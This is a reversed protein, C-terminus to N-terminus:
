SISVKTPSTAGARMAQLCEQAIKDIRLESRVLDLDVLGMNDSNQEDSLAIIQIDPYKKRLRQLIIEDSSKFVKWNLILADYKKQSLQTQAAKLSPVTEGDGISQLWENLLAAFRADTEVHLYRRPTADITRVNFPGKPLRIRFTTGVGETSDFEIRGGMKEVLSKAISLGLGTGGRKRTASSDAQSFPHFVKDQYHAPIGPGRDQVAIVIDKPNEKLAVTVAQNPDSYKVANSILNLLAQEIRPADIWANVPKEPFDADFHVDAKEAIPGAAAIAENVVETLDYAQYHFNMRETSAKELDLLDNLLKALRNSNGQAIGLLKQVTEPMNKSATAMVLDIAGKFSTVPTRLEHSMNALFERNNHEIEKRQSIDIFQAIFFNNEMLTGHGMSASLLMWKPEGSKHIFRAEIRFVNLNQARMHEIERLIGKLDDRHILSQFNHGILEDRSYGTLQALAQNVRTFCGVEDLLALPVPSSEIIDLFQSRSARLRENAEYLETIDTQSGILRNPVGNEDTGAVSTHSKFWRWTGPSTQVRYESVSQEVIGEICEQHSRKIKAVDDPHLRAFFEDQPNDAMTARDLHMLDVWSDSVISQGTTLDVDFIGIGSASLALNMRHEAEQLRNTIAQEKTVDDVLLISRCADSQDQFTSVRAKIHLSRGSTSRTTVILTGEWVEPPFEPFHDRLKEGVLNAGDIEFMDLFTANASLVKTGPALLAIGIMANDVIASTQDASARLQRTRAAVEREIERTRRTQNVIIVGILASLSLGILGILYTLFPKQMAVFAPMSQWVFTFTQGYLPVTASQTYRANPSDGNDSFIRTDPTANAGAYITLHLQQDQSPTLNSFLDEARIPAVVLGSLPATSDSAEGPATGFIPRSLVFGLNPKDFQALELPKSLHTAHSERAQAIMERRDADFSIDLGIAGANVSIPALYQIVFADDNQTPPHIQYGRADLDRALRTYTGDSKRVHTVWGIGGIRPLKGNFRVSAVYNSWEVPTIERSANILGAAGDLANEINQLRANLADLNDSALASFLENSRRSQFQSLAIVAIATIVLCTTM